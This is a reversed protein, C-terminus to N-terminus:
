RHWWSTARPCGCCARARLGAGGGPERLLGTAGQELTRWESLANAVALHAAIVREARRGETIDQVSGVMRRPQGATKEVLTQTARFHRVTGDPRM